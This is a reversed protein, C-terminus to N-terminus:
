PSLIVTLLPVGVAPMTLTSKRPNWMGSYPALGTGVPKTRLGTLAPRGRPLHVRLPLDPVQGQANM